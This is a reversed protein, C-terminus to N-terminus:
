DFPIKLEWPAYEPFMARLERKFGDTLKADTYCLFRPDAGDPVPLDSTKHKDSCKVGKEKLSNFYIMEFPIKEWVGFRRLLPLAKDREYLYPTHTSYTLTDEKPWSAADMQALARMMGRRWPNNGEGNVMMNPLNPYSRGLHLPTKVDDWGTPKLFLIDDNMWLVQRASQIGRTLANAYLWCDHFKIRPHNLLWTPRRTGYIHIPCDRDKFNALVSRLSFRLEQWKAGDAHWPYVIAREVTPEQEEVFPEPPAPILRRYTEMDTVEIPRVDVQVTLWRAPVPVWAGYNVRRRFWPEPAIVPGKEGLWAGWWGFTSNSIIHADCSALLRLDDIPEQPEAVDVDVMGGFAERCWPIDDSVIIFRPHDVLGRMREMADRFYAANTVDLNRHQVYDGRRVQVGVRTGDHFVPFDYPKLKYRERVDNEVGKFCVEAQFPSRIVCLDGSHKRVAELILSRSNASGQGYTDCIWKIDRFPPEAVGFHTLGFDRHSSPEWIWEFSLNLERAISLGAAWEFMQNGLGADKIFRTVVRKRTPGSSPDIRTIM